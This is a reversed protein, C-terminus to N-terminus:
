ASRSRVPNEVRGVFLVTGNRNDRILFVFPRNATFRPPLMTMRFGVGTAAAAETGLENVDVFAKHVAETIHLDKRGTIGSLDAQRSFALPMGLKSLTSKLSFQSEITFTPLTVMVRGPKMAEIWAELNDPTLKKELEFLPTKEQPLLVIMSLARGKYPLDLGIVDGNRMQKFESDHHMLPVTVTTTDSVHFEGARTQRPDFPQEWAGNFYVANTLVLRTMEDLIGKPLLEAIKDHTQEEVWRNITTRADETANAFDVEHLGAEYHNRNIAIFADLFNSGKQGWLANATFLEYDPRKDPDGNVEKMLAGVVPHLRASPLPFHLTRVIQDATTGRAGALTMALATSVSYPSYFVNGGRERVARYLDFAFQTNGRVVANQDASDPAANLLLAAVAALALSRM